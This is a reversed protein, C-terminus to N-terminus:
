HDGLLHEAEVHGDHAAVGARRRQKEGHLAALEVALHHAQARHAGALAIQPHSAGKPRQHREAAGPPMRLKRVHRDAALERASDSMSNPSSGNKMASGNAAGGSTGGSRALASCVANMAIHRSLAKTSSASFSPM